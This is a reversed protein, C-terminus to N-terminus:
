RHGSHKSRHNKRHAGLNAIRLRAFELSCRGVSREDLSCAFITNACVPQKGGILPKRRTVLSIQGVRSATECGPM